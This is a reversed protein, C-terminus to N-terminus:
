ALCPNVGTANSRWKLALGYLHKGDEVACTLPLATSPECRTCNNCDVLENRLTRLACSCSCWYSDCWYPAFKMGFKNLSMAFVHM